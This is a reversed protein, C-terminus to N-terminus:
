KKEKEVAKRLIALCLAQLNTKERVAELKLQMHLDEPVDRLRIDTM